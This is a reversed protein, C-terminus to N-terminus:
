QDKELEKMRQENAYKRIENLIKERTKPGIGPISLFMEEMLVWTETAGQIQGRLLAKDLKKQM